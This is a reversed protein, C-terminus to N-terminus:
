TPPGDRRAMREALRRERRTPKKPPDPYAAVKAEIATRRERAEAIAADAEGQLRRWEAADALMERSVIVTGAVKTPGTM